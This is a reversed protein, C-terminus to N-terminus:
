PKLGSSLSNEILDRGLEVEMKADLLLQEFYGSDKLSEHQDPSFWREMNEIFADADDFSGDELRLNLGDVLDHHDSGYIEAVRRLIEFLEDDNPKEKRLFSQSIFGLDYADRHKFAPRSAIAKIKDGWFSALKATPFPNRIRLGRSQTANPVCLFADYESLLEDSVRYFEMKVMVKGIKKPHTWKIEWVDMRGDAGSGSKLKVGIETGPIISSVRHRINNAVRPGATDLNQAASLAVMFDLDESHRGSEHAIDLATGGHFVADGVRWRTTRFVEELLMVQLYSSLKLNEEPTINGRTATDILM